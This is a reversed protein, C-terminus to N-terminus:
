GVPAIIGNAGITAANAGFDQKSLQNVFAAAANNPDVFAQGTPRLILSTFRGAVFSGTSSLTVHLIASLALTGSASFDEYNVFNGLSYDILHGRYWELGRLVHPGSAIM